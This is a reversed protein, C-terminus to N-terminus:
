HNLHQGESHFTILELGLLALRGSSPQQALGKVRFQIFSCYSQILPDAVHQLHQVIIIHVFTIFMKHFGTM